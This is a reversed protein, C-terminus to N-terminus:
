QKIDTDIDKLHGYLRNNAYLWGQMTGCDIYESDTEIVGVKYGADSYWTVADTIYKEDQPSKEISKQVYPFISSNLLFCGANNLNSPADKVSPKEVIRDLYIGNDTQRTAIIGYSSVSEPPVPVALMAADCDMKRVDGLFKAVTSKQNPSFFINDGYMYLINENPAILDKALWLPTSTGYPERANQVVFSFKAKDALAQTDRLYEEAGKNGLHRELPENHGYYTRVQTSQESVVFIIENIGAAICDDVIYDIIPKDGIPIMCKEIAKTILLRRTGFGALAIVAKNCRRPKAM